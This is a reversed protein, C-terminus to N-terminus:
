EKAREEQYIPLTVTFTTGQGVRSVVSINGNHQDIVQKAIPLGLGVGGFLHDGVAELHHFRDFVHYIQDPPIGVGPDTISIQLQGDQDAQGAVKIEGGNPSFKVANDFLAKFAESLGDLDGRAKPLDPPLDVRITLGHGIARSRISEVISNILQHLDVPELTPPILDLEQLFLINNTLRVIADSNNVIVSLAQILDEGKMMGSRMLHAYGKIATLPTRLEHAVVTLFDSKRKVMDELHAYALALQDNKQRLEDIARQDSDRLRAAVSRMIEMAMSPSNSLLEQFDQKTIALLSTEELAYVSATRPADDVLALEGFFQGAQLEVLLRQTGLAFFKSVQVRGSMILYFADGREGEECIRDGAAVCLEHAGRAIYTRMEENLQPFANHLIEVRRDLTM